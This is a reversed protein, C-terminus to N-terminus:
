KQGASELNYFVHKSVPKECCTCSAGSFGCLFEWLFKWLFKWLCIKAVNEPMNQLVKLQFDAFDHSFGTFNLSFGSIRM